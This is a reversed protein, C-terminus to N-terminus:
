LGKWFESQLLSAQLSIISEKWEEIKEIIEDAQSLKEIASTEFIIEREEKLVIDSEGKFWKIVRYFILKNDEGLKFYENIFQTIIAKDYAIVQELQYDNVLLFYRQTHM